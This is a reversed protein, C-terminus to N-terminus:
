LLFYYIYSFFYSIYLIITYHLLEVFGSSLKKFLSKPVVIFAPRLVILLSVINEHPFTIRSFLPSLCPSQLLWLTSLPSATSNIRGCLLTISEKIECIMIFQIKPYYRKLPLYISLPLHRSTRIVRPNM